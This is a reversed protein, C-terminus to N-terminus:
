FNDLGKINIDIKESIARAAKSARTKWDQDDLNQIVGDASIFFPDSSLEKNNAMLNFLEDIKEKEIDLDELMLRWEDNTM